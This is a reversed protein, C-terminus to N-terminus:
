HSSEAKTPALLGVQIDLDMQFIGYSQVPWLSVSWFRDTAAYVLRHGDPSFSPASIWKAFPVISKVSLKEPLGEILLLRRIPFPSLLSGREETVMLRNKYPGWRLDSLRGDTRFIARFDSGNVSMHFLRDKGRSRGICAISRGDASLIVERLLGFDKWSIRTDEKEREAWSDPIWFEPLRSKWGLFRFMVHIGDRLSVLGGRLGSKVGALFRLVAKGEDSPSFVLVAEKKYSEPILMSVSRRNLDLVAVNSHGEERSCCALRYADKSLSPWSLDLATTMIRDADGGDRRLRWIVTGLRSKTLVIMSKGDKVWCPQWGSSPVGPLRTLWIRMGSVSVLEVVTDNSARYAVAVSDSEPSPAPYVEMSPLHYELFEWGPSLGDLICLSLDKGRPVTYFAHNGDPAWTMRNPCTNLNEVLPATDGMNFAATGWMLGGFVLPPLLAFGQFFFLVIGWALKGGRWKGERLGRLSRSLFIGGVACTLIAPLLRGQGWWLWIGVTGIAFSFGMWFADQREGWERKATRYLHILLWLAAVVWAPLWLLQWSRSSIFGFYEVTFVIGLLILLIEAWRLAGIRWGYREASYKWRISRLRLVAALLFVTWALLGAADKFRGDSWDLPIDASPSRYTGLDFFSAWDTLPESRGTGLRYVSGATGILLWEGDTGLAKVSRDFIVPVAKMARVDVRFLRGLSTAVCVGRADSNVMSVPTEKPRLGEIVVRKTEGRVTEYLGDETMLLLRGPQHEIIAMIPKSNLSSPLRLRETQDTDVRLIGGGYHGVWVGGKSSAALATVYPSPLSDKYQRWSKPNGSFLGDQTTGVWLRGSSDREIVSVALHSLMERRGLKRFGRGDYRVLGKMTGVWLERRGAKMATVERSPLNDTFDRFGNFRHGLRVRTLGDADAVWLYGQTSGICSIGDFTKERPPFLNGISPWGGLLVQYAKFCFIVVGALAITETYLAVRRTSFRDEKPKLVAAASVVRRAAGGSRAAQSQGTPKPQVEAPKSRGEPLEGSGARVRKALDSAKKVWDSLAM